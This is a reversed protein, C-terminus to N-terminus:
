LAVLNITARWKTRNCNALVMEGNPLLVCSSRSIDAFLCCSDFGSQVSPNEIVGAVVFTVFSLRFAYGFKDFFKGIRVALHQGLLSSSICTLYQRLLDKEDVTGLLLRGTSEVDTSWWAYEDGM